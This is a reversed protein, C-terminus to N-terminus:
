AYLIRFHGCAPLTNTELTVAVGGRGRPQPFQSVPFRSQPCREWRRRDGDCGGAPEPSRLSRDGRWGGRM